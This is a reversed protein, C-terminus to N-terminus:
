WTLNNPRTYIMQMVNINRMAFAAECYCLYYNWKCIFREDFGLAIVKEKVRNFNGRWESLTRAYHQGMDKLDVLTLDGTNNVARNLAAVSPLLSGPFIHKQIWDVGRRLEEFRSDPCTIVQLAVVGDKKLLRQVQRFYVDYFQAGVAELMEVSVIRDFQGEMQRYDELVIKVRDSLGAAEVREMALKQQEESITISTVRCGYNKAMFIANGGWGSGIELVHHEPKLKMMESLRRYKAQQAEQLPMNENEFLASSYTMTPDLWLAFFDNSLDYHERINKRAVSTSNSRRVHFIRNF